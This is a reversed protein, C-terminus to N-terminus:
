FVNVSGKRISKRPLVGSQTKIVILMLQHYMISQITQKLGTGRLLWCWYMILYTLIENFSIAIHSFIFLSSSLSLTCHFDSGLHWLLLPLQTSVDQVTTFDLANQCVWQSTKLDFNTMLSIEQVQVLDARTDTNCQTKTPLSWPICRSAFSHHHIEFHLLQAM